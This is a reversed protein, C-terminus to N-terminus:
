SLELGVRTMVRLVDGLSALTVFAVTLAVALNAEYKDMNARRWDAQRTGSEIVFTGGLKKVEVRFYNGCKM